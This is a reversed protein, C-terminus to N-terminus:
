RLVLAYLIKHRAAIDTLKYHTPPIPIKIWAISINHTDYQYIRLKKISTPIHVYM